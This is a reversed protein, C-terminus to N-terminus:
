IKPIVYSIIVLRASQCVSLMAERQQKIYIKGIDLIPNREVDIAGWTCRVHVQSPRRQSFSGTSDPQLQV